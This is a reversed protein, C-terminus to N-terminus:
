FLSSDLCSFGRIGFPNYTNLPARGKSRTRFNGLASEDDDDNEDEFVLNLDFRPRSRRRRAGPISKESVSKPRKVTWVEERGRLLLLWGNSNVNFRRSRGSM